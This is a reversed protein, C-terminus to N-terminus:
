GKFEQIKVRPFFRLKRKKLEKDLVDSIVMWSAVGGEQWWHASGIKLSDIEAHYKRAGRVRSVTPLDGASKQTLTKEPILTQLSRHVNIGYCQTEFPEGDKKFADIQWIQHAGADLEDLLDKLPQQIVYLGCNARFVSAIGKQNKRFDIRRPCEDDQLLRGGIRFTKTVDVNQIPWESPDADQRTPGYEAPTELKWAMPNNREIPPLVSRKRVSCSLSRSSKPVSGMSFKGFVAVPVWVMPKSM